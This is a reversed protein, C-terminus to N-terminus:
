FFPRFFEVGFSMSATIREGSPTFIEKDMDIGPENESLFKKIFKSDKIPMKNIFKSIEEKSSQGDIEVIQKMLTWTIVPAIM